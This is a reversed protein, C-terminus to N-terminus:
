FEASKLMKSRCVGILAISDGDLLSYSGQFRDWDIPRVEIVLSAYKFPGSQGVFSTCLSSKTNHYHKTTM